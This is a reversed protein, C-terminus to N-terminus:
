ILISKANFSLTGYFVVLWGFLYVFLKDAYLSKGRKNKSLFFSLWLKKKSNICSNLGQILMM